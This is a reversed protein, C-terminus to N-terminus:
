KRVESYGPPIAFASPDPTVGVHIDSLEEVVLGIVAGTEQNLLDRESRVTISYDPSVWDKGVVKGTSDRVAVAVCKLGGITRTVVPGPEREVKSTAAPSEPWPVIRYQQRADDIVYSMGERRKNILSTGVTAHGDRIVKLHTVEDGASNRSFTGREELKM